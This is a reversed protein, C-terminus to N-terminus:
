DHQNIHEIVNLRFLAVKELWAISCMNWKWSAKYIQLSPKLDSIVAKDTVNIESSSRAIICELKTSGNLRKRFGLCAYVQL